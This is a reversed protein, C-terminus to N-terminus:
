LKMTTTRRKQSFGEISGQREQCVSIIQVILYRFFSVYCLRPQGALDAKKADAMVM